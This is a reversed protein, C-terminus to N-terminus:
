EFFFLSYLIFKLGVIILKTMSKRLHVKRDELVHVPNLIIYFQREITKNVYVKGNGWCMFVHIHNTIEFKLILSFLM